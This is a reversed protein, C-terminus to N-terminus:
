KPKTIKQRLFIPEFPARLINIFNIVASAAFLEEKGGGWIRRFQRLLRNKFMILTPNPFDCAILDYTM